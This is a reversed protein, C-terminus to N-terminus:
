QQVTVVRRREFDHRLVAMRNKFIVLSRDYMPLFTAPPIASESNAYVVTVGGGAVDPHSVTCLVAHGPDTYTQGDFEFGADTFRVPFEVADLFAGAYDDHVADGLIVVCREALAGPEINGATRTIRQDEEFRKEFVSKVKEYPEAAEGSPLVCAFASGRRTSATTPIIDEAHVKRFLHYDPDLEVTLPAVNMPVTVRDSSSTFPVDIDMTGGADTVRLVVDLEFAPEGQCLEVTLTQERPDYQAAEISLLPAGGNRVWQQFFTELSEGSARETVERIAEWSAYSGVYEQTLQRMAAWFNEQGIRRALMHFVMAGKNYAIGRGCGGDLGYTGLPKDDEPELRSLFHSYNRRKRRAEEDKGDLVYGYYNAGYSALAECWDGDGPDVHVGNGWWCHLMEHDLYGHATQSRKGMDIVASSLLTFTPFAFGSSFFNNVIAFESAPYPGILPEYRDLNRRVAEFLGEVHKAQDPKLHLEIAVGNHTDRHVEHPGGVVVMGDVPFPSRWALRGTQESLAEDREAGAVLEFGPVPDVILTYDALDREPGDDDAAPQPYWCGDALYIGDEGIHARMSFNHIEGPKEGASVDQWLVGEYDVFVTLRDVPAQLVVVHKRCEPEDNQAPSYVSSGRYEGNTGRTTIQTIKLDPHLLLEVAVPTSTAPEADALKALDLATRGVLRHSAPDLQVEIRYRQAQMPLRPVSACGGLGAILLGAVTILRSCTSARCARVTM